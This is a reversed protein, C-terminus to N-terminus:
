QSVIEILGNIEADRLNLVLEEEPDGATQTQAHISASLLSLGLLLPFTCRAIQSLMPM